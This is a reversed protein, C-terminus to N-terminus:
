ICTFSTQKRYFIVWFKSIQCMCSKIIPKIRFLTFVLKCWSHYKCILFKCSTYHFFLIL